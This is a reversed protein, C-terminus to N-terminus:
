LGLRAVCWKYNIDTRDAAPVKFAKVLLEADDRTLPLGVRDMCRLFQARSLVGHNHRDFEHLFAPLELRRTKVRRDLRALLVRLTAESADSLRRAGTVAGAAVDVLAVSQDLAQRTVGLVDVDPDEELHKVSFITDVDDCFKQWQVLPQGAADVSRDYLFANCLAETEAPSLRAGANNLATDFQHRTIAGHRLKDYDRMFEDLRVQGKRMALKVKKLVEGVDVSAAKSEGRPSSGSGHGISAKGARQLTRNPEIDELFERYDVHTRARAGDGAYRDLLAEVAAPDTPMCNLSKLVRQFQARTIFEEHARDFDQFLLILSLGLRRQLVFTKIDRMAGSRPLFVRRCGSWVRAQSDRACGLACGCGPWPLALYARALVSRVYAALEATRPSLRAREHRPGLAITRAACDLTKTPAREFGERTFAEDVEKCFAAYGVKDRDAQPGPAPLPHM